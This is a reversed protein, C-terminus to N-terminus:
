NCVPKFYRLIKDVSDTGTAHMEERYYYLFEGDSFRIKPDTTGDYIEPDSISTYCLLEFDSDLYAIARQYGLHMHLVEAVFNEGIPYFGTILSNKRFFDQLRMPNQIYSDDPQSKNELAFNPIELDLTEFSNLDELDFTYLTNGFPMLLLLDNDDRLLHGGSTFASLLFNEPKQEPGLNSQQDGQESIMTLYTEIQRAEQGLIFRNDYFFIDKARTIPPHIEFFPTGTIVNLGIIKGAYDLVYMSTDSITFNYLNEMEYPGRGYFEFYAVQRGSELSYKSIASLDNSTIYLFGADEEFRSLSSQYFDQISDELIIEGEYQLRLNDQAVVM